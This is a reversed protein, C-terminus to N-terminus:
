DWYKSADRWEPYKAGLWAEGAKLHKDCADADKLYLTRYEEKARISADHGPFTPNVLPLPDLAHIVAGCDKVMIICADKREYDRAVSFRRTLSLSAKRDYFAAKYFIGARERGKDDVLSSHMSHDTAVKKWGPPLVVNQFLPDGDVVGLFKIGYSELAAKTTGDNNWGMKTPLVDSEVLQKQGAAEQVEIARPNGGMLWDPRPLRDTKTIKNM